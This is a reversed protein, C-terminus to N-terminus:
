AQDSIVNSVVWQRFAEEQMEGAALAMMARTAESEAVDLYLGNLGLIVGLAGFAARKNGDVFPHNRCISACVAAAVVAVDADPEYAMIQGARGLSGELLGRDSLGPAGGFEAIWEAHLDIVAEIPPLRVQRV